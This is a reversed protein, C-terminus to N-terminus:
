FFIYINLKNQIHLDPVLWQISGADPLLLRPRFLMRCTSGTLLSLPYIVANYFLLFFIGWLLQEDATPYYSHHCFDKWQRQSQKTSQERRYDATRGRCLLLLESWPQGHRQLIRESTVTSAIGAMKVTMNQPCSLKIKWSSGMMGDSVCKIANSCYISKLATLWITSSFSQKQPKYLAAKLRTM